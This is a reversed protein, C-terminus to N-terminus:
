GCKARAVDARRGIEGGALIEDRGIEGIVRLDLPDDGADFADHM